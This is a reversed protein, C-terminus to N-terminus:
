FHFGIRLMLSGISRRQRSINNMQTSAYTNDKLTSSTYDINHTGMGYYHIGASVHEGFIAGVGIQWAFATTPKYSLKFNNDGESTIILIDTGIGFEGYASIDNWPLEDYIYTVGGMIPINFYTPTSFYAESYKDGWKSTITNWIFDANLFPAVLGTGVDFRYSVRYGLGFGVSADKGIQECTLPVGTNYATPLPYQLTASADSGFDSTPINGNLYVSQRFQANAMTGFGALLVTLCLVKVVKKM